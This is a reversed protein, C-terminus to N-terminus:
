NKTRWAAYAKIVKQASNNYWSYGNRRELSIANVDDHISKDRDGFIPQLTQMDYYRAWLSGAGAEHRFTRGEGKNAEGWVADKIELRRLTAVGGEIAEVLAKDTKPMTMLDLLISASESSSLAAPEFNRAGVPKLSIPDIQQAWLTKEGKIVVQSQLLCMLGRKASLAYTAKEAKSLFAFEKDSAATAMLAMVANMANDNFTIADHYGGELPWVQPWGGNPYQANLLYGLGKRISAQYVASQGEPLAAVVRNLFLIETTTADNDITGVYTGLSLDYDPTGKKAGTDAVYAQGKLRAPGFRSQNKGWGGSPTQFSLITDAILTADPSAYWSPSKDLPMSAPGIKDSQPRAPVLSLGQRESAITTLDNQHAAESRQLYALWLSKQADPLSNLSQPALASAPQMQGIIKAQSQPAIMIMIAAVATTMIRKKMIPIPEKKAVTIPENKILKLASNAGKLILLTFLPM